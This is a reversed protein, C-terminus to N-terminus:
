LDVSGLVEAADGAPRSVSASRGAARSSSSVSGASPSSAGPSVSSASDTAAGAVVGSSAGPSSADKVAVCGAVAGGHRAGSGFSVGSCVSVVRRRVSVSAAGGVSSSLRAALRASRRPPPSLRCAPYLLRRLVLRWHLVLVLRLVPLLSVQSQPLRALKVPRPM